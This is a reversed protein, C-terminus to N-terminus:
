KPYYVVEPRLRLGTLPRFLDPNRVFPYPGDYYRRLVEETAEDMLLFTHQDLVVAAYRHEQLARRLEGRLWQGWGLGDSRLVDYVAAMHMHPPKGAYVALYPHFPILVEGDIAELRAVVEEGKAKQRPTPVVLRPNYLLALMQLFVLLYVPGRWWDGQPQAWELAQNMWLGLGFALVSHLPMLDNLYSGRHSRVLWTNVLVGLFFLGYWMFARSHGRAWEGWLYLLTLAFALTTYPFVDDKWFRWLAHPLVPFGGPLRVTYYWFWGQSRWTLWLTAGVLLTLFSVVMGWARADRYRGGRWLAYLFVPGLIPLATQKTMTALFFFFGAVIGGWWRRSWVLAYMGVWLAALFLADVRGVDFWTGSLRYTGAYFGGAVLAPWGRGGERYVWFMVVGMTVLSSVISVIRLSYFTPGIVQALLATAYYYGPPYIFPVFDLSPPVYLPRGALVRRLVVLFGGEIWELEFPYRLRRSAAWLFFAFYLLTFLLSGGMLAWTFWSSLRERRMFQGLVGKPNPM